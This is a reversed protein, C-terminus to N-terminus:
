GYKRDLSEISNTPVNESLEVILQENGGKSPYLAVRSNSSKVSKFNSVQFVLPWYAWKSLMVSTGSGVVKSRNTKPDTNALFFCDTSYGYDVVM